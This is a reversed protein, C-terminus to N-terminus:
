HSMTIILSITVCRLMCMLHLIKAIKLYYGSIFILQRYICYTTNLVFNLLYLIYDISYFVEQHHSRLYHVAALSLQDDKKDIQLNHHCNMLKNEDGLRHYINFLLRNKLSDNTGRDASKEADEYNQQYFYCCALFLNVEKPVDHVDLLEKYAEEARRFNGLHFACYGIWLLLDKTEGDQCKLKFELLTLAGIYDRKALFEEV